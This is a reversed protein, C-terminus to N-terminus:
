LSTENLAKFLKFGTECANPVYNNDKKTNM